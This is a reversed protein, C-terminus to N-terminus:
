FYLVNYLDDRGCIATYKEFYQTTVRNQDYPKQIMLM